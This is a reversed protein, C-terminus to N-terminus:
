LTDSHRRFYSVCQEKLCTPMFSYYRGKQKQPLRPLKNGSSLTKLANLSLEVCVQTNISRLQYLESKPPIQLRKQEVMDGTDLAADMWHLTTVLNEFDRHYIAWLHSDLGRYAEPNGGHLNLCLPVTRLVDSSLRQTGFVLLIDAQFYTLLQISNPDNLSDVYVTKTLEEFPAALGKLLVNQEYQDRQNEYPHSVDFPAQLRSQELVIGHIPHQQHIMQAFYRHHSTDTTLLVVKM